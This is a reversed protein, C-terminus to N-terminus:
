SGGGYINPGAWFSKKAAMRSNSINLIKTSIEKLNYPM